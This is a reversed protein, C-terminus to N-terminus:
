DGTKPPDAPPPEAAAVHGALEPSQPDIRGSIVPLMPVNEDDGYFAAVGAPIEGPLHQTLIQGPQYGNWKQLLLAKM